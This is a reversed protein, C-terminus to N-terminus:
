IQRLSPKKFQFAKEPNAFATPHLELDTLCGEINGQLKRYKFVWRLVALM